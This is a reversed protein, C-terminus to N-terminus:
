RELVDVVRMTTPDVLVIQNQVTTYKVIKADPVEALVGDPLIYLEISPPVPAGVSVVFNIPSAPKAAEKRVANLISTKQAPTLQLQQSPASTPPPAYEISDNGQGVAGPPTQAPAAATGAILTLAILGCHFRTKM